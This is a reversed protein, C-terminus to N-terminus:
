YDKECKDKRMIAFFYYGTSMIIYNIIITHPIIKAECNDNSYKRPDQEEPPTWMM